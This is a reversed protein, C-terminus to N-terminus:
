RSSVLPWRGGGERHELVVYWREGKKAVSM